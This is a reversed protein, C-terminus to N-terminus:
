VLERLKRRFMAVVEPDEFLENMVRDSKSRSETIKNLKSELEKVQKKLSEITESESSVEYIRLHDYAEKYKEFLEQYTPM